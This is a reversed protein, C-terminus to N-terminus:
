DTTLQNLRDAIAQAEKKTDWGSVIKCNWLPLKRAKKDPTAVVMRYTGGYKDGKGIVYWGPGTAHNRAAYFDKLISGDYGLNNFKVGDIM